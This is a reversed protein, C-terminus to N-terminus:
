AHKAPILERESSFEGDAFLERWWWACITMGRLAQLEFSEMAVAGTMPVGVGGSGKMVVLELAVHVM